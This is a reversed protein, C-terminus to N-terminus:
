FSFWCERTVTHKCNICRLLFYVLTEFVLFLFHQTFDHSVSFCLLRCWPNTETNMSWSLSSSLINRCIFVSVYSILLSTNIPLHAVLQSLPCSRVLGLCPRFSQARIRVRFRQLLSGVCFLFAESICKWPIPLSWFTWWNTACATCILM